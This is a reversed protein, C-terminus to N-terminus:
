LNHVLWKGSPLISSPLFPFHPHSDLSRSPNFNTQMIVLPLSSPLYSQLSWLTLPECNHDELHNWSHFLDHHDTTWTSCSAPHNFTLGHPVSFYPCQTPSEQPLFPGSFPGTTATAKQTSHKFRWHVPFHHITGHIIAILILSHYLRIDLTEFFNLKLHFLLFLPRFTAAIWKM